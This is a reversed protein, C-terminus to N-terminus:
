LLHGDVLDWQLAEQKDKPTAKKLMKVLIWALKGAKLYDNADTKKGDVESWFASAGVQKALETAREQKDMWVFCARFRRAYDQAAPTLKASESGLSLVDVRAGNAVQWVSMANIEGEVIVMTRDAALDLGNDHKTWMTLAQMGFLVGAMRSGTESVIKQTGTPQLLRYRIGTLKGGRLWPMAVAPGRGSADDTYGLGYAAWTDLHLGRGMLYDGGPTGEEMLRRQMSDLLVPGHAMFRARAEDETDSFSRETIASPRMPTRETVAGGNLFEVAGMFDLGETLQILSIVDGTAGCQNCGWVGQSVFFRDTGGCKPCPGHMTRTSAKHLTTYRSAVVRCDFREKLSVLDVNM